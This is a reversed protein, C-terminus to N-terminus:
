KNDIKSVGLFISVLLVAHIRRPLPALPAVTEEVDDLSIGITKLLTQDLYFYPSAEFLPYLISILL